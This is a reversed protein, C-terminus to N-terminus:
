VVLLADADYFRENHEHGGVTVDQRYSSCSPVSPTHALSHLVNRKRIQPSFQVISCGETEGAWDKSAIMLVYKLIGIGYDAVNVHKGVHKTWKEVQLHSVPTIVM